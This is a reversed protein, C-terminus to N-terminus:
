AAAYGAQEIAARLAGDNLDAGRVTVLKSDFDVEVSDVGAVEGLEASVAAKCHGCSMDPVTYSIETMETGGGNSIGM